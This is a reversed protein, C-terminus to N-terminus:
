RRKADKDGATHLMRASTCAIAPVLSTLQKPNHIQWQPVTSHDKAQGYGWGVLAAPAGAAKAAGMDASSDGVMLLEHTKLGLDQAARQLMAPLPKRLEARDAGYVSAFLGLLGAAELVASALATPKNTVVVLPCCEYLTQLADVIDPYVAGHGMPAALTAADFDGRLRGRLAIDADGTATAALAETSATSRAELARAILMDPGDGIWARVAALDFAGLGANRLATNLAHAIDPASDVLTGDLDFAIAKIGSISNIEHNM